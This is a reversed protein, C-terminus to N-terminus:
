CRNDSQEHEMEELVDDCKNVLHNITQLRIYKLESDEKNIVPLWNLLAKYSLLCEQISYIDHANFTNM